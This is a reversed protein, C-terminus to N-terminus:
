GSKPMAFSAGAPQSNWRQMVSKQRTYFRVGEEGYVHLDGFLSQKWGGFGQWASPVPIPVNVGVMGVEISQTFTRAALGSDTYLSVGNAFEHANVLAIAQELTEVHICALVPGFIEERYIRMDPTVKDFVTPGVWFGDECGEGCQKPDITRGDLLLDAGEAVGSDIYGRIRDCAAASIVAGMEAEEKIGQQVRLAKGKALLRPLVAKGSDGVFVAVSIAMCREGASGFAAGVLADAVVEPNADPMVILHNKAGGLAQVRKGHKASREYIHRAVATSGVFSVAKVDPHDLLANVSEPGGQVVNMVGDPLGAQKLMQALMLSPSADLPSPKLIFANGTALSMPMMWLPVMVPFNFPTIGATVGLPERQVWNDINGGVNISMGTKLLQPAGCAFEVIEIGRMVEGRADSIVKGHEQSIVQALTEKQADLEQLFRNMIRARYLPSRAAWAPQAAKATQVAQAVVQEGGLPVQAIVKGKAPDHIPQHGHESQHSYEGNLWHGTQPLSDHTAM